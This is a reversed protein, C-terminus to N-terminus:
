KKYHTRFIQRIVGYPQFMYSNSYLELNCGVIHLTEYNIIEVSARCTEPPEEAWWWSCVVTCVAEPITLWVAAQQLLSCYQNVIGSATHVTIHQQHHVSFGGSVHLANTSIFLYHFKADQRYYNPTINPVRPRIFTLNNSYKILNHEIIIQKSRIEVSTLCMTWPHSINSVPSVASWWRNFMLDNLPTMVSRDTIWGGM